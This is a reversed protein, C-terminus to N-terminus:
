NRSLPSPGPPSSRCCDENAPSSAISMTLPDADFRANMLKPPEEVVVPRIIAAIEKVQAALREPKLVSGSLERMRDLYAKRFDPVAMMRELFRIQQPTPQLINGTAHDGPQPPFEGFSHDQDWPIFM